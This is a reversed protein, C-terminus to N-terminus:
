FPLGLVNILPSRWLANILEDQLIEQHSMSYAPVTLWSPSTPKCHLDGLFIM